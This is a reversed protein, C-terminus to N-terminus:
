VQLHFHIFLCSFKQIHLTLRCMDNMEKMFIYLYCLATTPLLLLLHLKVVDDHDDDASDRSEMLVAVAIDYGTGM